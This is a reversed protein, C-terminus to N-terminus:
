ATGDFIIVDYRKRVFILVNLTEADIRKKLVAVPLTMDQLQRMRKEYVFVGNRPSFRLTQRLSVIQKDYLFFVIIYGASICIFVFASLQTINKGSFYKFLIIVYSYSFDFADWNINAFQDLLNIM